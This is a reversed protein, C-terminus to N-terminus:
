GEEIVTRAYTYAERFADKGRHKVGGICDEDFKLLSSLKSMYLVDLDLMADINTTLCSRLDIRARNWAGVIATVNVADQILIAEKFIESVTRM